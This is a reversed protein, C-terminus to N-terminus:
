RGLLVLHRAEHDHAEEASGYEGEGHSIGAVEQASLESGHGHHSESDEIQHHVCKFDFVVLRCLGHFFVYYYSHAFGQPVNQGFTLFYTACGGVKGVMYRLESQRATHDASNAVVLQAMLYYFIEGGLPEGMEDLGDGIGGTGHLHLDVLGAYGLILYLLIHSPVVNGIGGLEFLEGLPGAGHAEAREGLAVHHRAVGDVTEKVGHGLIGVVEHHKVHIQALSEVVLLDQAVGHGAAVDELDVILLKHGHAAHKAVGADIELVLAPDQQALVVQLHENEGATDVATVHKGGAVYRELGGRLHLYGVGHACAVRKGGSEYGADELALAYGFSM